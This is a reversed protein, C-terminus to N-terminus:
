SKAEGKAPNEQTSFIKIERYKLIKKEEQHQAFVWMFLQSVSSVPFVNCCLLSLSSDFASLLCFPSPASLSFADEESM